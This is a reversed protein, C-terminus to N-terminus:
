KPKDTDLSRKSVGLSRDDVAHVEQFMTRLDTFIERVTVHWRPM